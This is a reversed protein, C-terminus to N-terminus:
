PADAIAITSIVGVFLPNGNNTQRVRIGVRKGIATAALADVGFIAQYAAQFDQGAPGSEINRDGVYRLETLFNKVGPSLPRTLEVAINVDEVGTNNLTLSVAQDVATDDATVVFGTINIQAAIAFAPPAVVVGEVARSANYCNVSMFAAFPTLTFANGLRDVRTVTGTWAARQADTLTRWVASLSALNGQIETKRTTVTNVPNSRRRAIGNRTYTTAGISGSVQAGGGHIIRAMSQPKDTGGATHLVLHQTM